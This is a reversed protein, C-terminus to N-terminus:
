GDLEGPVAWSHPGVTVGDYTWPEDDLNLLVRLREGDASSEYALRRNALQLVDTRAAHLWPHRRRLGILDQHLRMMAVDLDPGADPGDDLVAGAPRVADDGGVRDEKVGTLAYEDGYYISPTGALTCLLVVAHAVHRRDDLRSAIRTVDHNGVFTQPVFSDLWHVHREIAWALEFFNSDNLASWIAKWLEYQTVADLAGGAVYGAYDGHIMEGVIYAEPHEARVPPLVTRWFAAPVAYAADLRWGDAGRALWHRMVDSVHAAVAPNSHDLRVLGQHGEFVDRAGDRWLFWDDPATFSPAVHNFVGDLVLRLGRGRCASVLAAFDDDSGLREDIRFHDLTDYGHTQSAFIPGLLLGSCGLEVVHDLRDILARLGGTDSRDAGTTDAGAFGLPYVHWLIANRVWDSGSM